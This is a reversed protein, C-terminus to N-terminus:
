SKYYPVFYGLSPVYMYVPTGTLPHELIHLQDFRGGLLRLMEEIVAERQDPAVGRSTLFDDAMQKLGDRQWDEVPQNSQDVSEVAKSVAAPLDEFYWKNKCTKFDKCGDIVDPNFLEEIDGDHREIKLLSKGDSDEVTVTWTFPAIDTAANEHL